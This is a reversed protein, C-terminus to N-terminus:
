EEHEHHCGCCGSCGGSKSCASGSPCGICKVGSKKAKYIYLAALGIIAALVLALILNEM